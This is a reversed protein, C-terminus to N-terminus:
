AISEDFNYAGANVGFCFLLKLYCRLKAIPKTIEDETFDGVERRHEAPLLGTFFTSSDRGARKSKM